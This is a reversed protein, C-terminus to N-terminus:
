KQEFIHMKKALANRQNSNKLVDLTSIRRVFINNYVFMVGTLVWLIPWLLIIHHLKKFRKKMQRHLEFLYASLSAKRSTVQMRDKDQKGFEGGEFVDDLLAEVLDHDNDKLWQLQHEDLGLYDICVGSITSAFGTLGLEKLWQKFLVQDIQDAKHQWFVVWDFFLKLGFGKNMFHQFMHMLLYLANLTTPLTPITLNMITENSFPQSALADDYIKQLICDFNGNAYSTTLRYHLEVEIAQNNSTFLYSHHYDTMEEHDKQYGAEEFADIVKQYAKADDIFYDIDSFVRVEEIPYLANLGLGKLFYGKVGLTNMKEQLAAALNVKQYFVFANNLAQKDLQARLGPPVPLQSNQSIALGLMPICHQVMAMQVIAQWDQITMQSFTELPAAEKQLASKMLCLLRRQNMDRM